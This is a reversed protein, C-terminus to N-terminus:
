LCVWLPHAKWNAPLGMRSSADPVPPTQSDLLGEVRMRWDNGFAKEAPCHLLFKAQVLLSAFLRANDPVAPAQWANGAPLDPRIAWKRDWLRLHHACLNRTYVLHHFWSRLTDPQVRYRSAIDKQDARLMGSYMKSLAGFSMIETAVWIPMDPFEAYINKYHEVFLEDSRGTEEHLKALWDQHRFTHFFKNPDTHGFPQRNKGFSYAVNARLDLEIVELSETVLDRLARDFYYAARIQDFTAGPRFVHRQQEFALSYGSFRYYNIHRLFECAATDDAVTLGYSKLKQLQDPIPLWPKSYPISM